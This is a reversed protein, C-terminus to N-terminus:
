KKNEQFVETVVEELLKNINEKGLFNLHKTEIPFDTQYNVLVGEKQAKTFDEKLLKNINEKSKIKDFDEESIEGDLVMNQYGQILYNLNDKLTRKLKDKM